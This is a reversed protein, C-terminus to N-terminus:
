APGAALERRRTEVWESIAQRIAEGKSLGLVAALAELEKELLRPVKAKLVSTTPTPGRRGMRM